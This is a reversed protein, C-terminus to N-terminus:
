DCNHNYFKIAKKFSSEFNKKYSNKDRIKETFISCENGMSKLIAINKKDRHHMQKIYISNKRCIYFLNSTFNDGTLYNSGSFERSFLSLKGKQEEKVLFVVDKRRGGINKQLIKYTYIEGDDFILEKVEKQNFTRKKSDKTKRYKIKNGSTLKFLGKLSSGDRLFLIGSEYVKFGFDNRNQSFLNTKLLFTFILVVTIRKIM